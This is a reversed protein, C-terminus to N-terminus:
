PKISKLNARKRQINNFDNNSSDLKEMVARKRSESVHIYKQTTRFDTHGMLEQVAYPDDQAARGARSGFTHRLDHVRVNDLDATERVKRWQRGVYQLSYPFIREGKKVNRIAIAEKLADTLVANLPTVVDKKRDKRIIRPIRIYGQDFDVMEPCNRLGLVEGLRYGASILVRFLPELRPAVQGVAEFLHGEEEEDLFRERGFEEFRKVGKVPNPFKGVNFAHSLLALERNISAPSGDPKKGLIEAKRDRKYRHIDTEGIRSIRRGGFFGKLHAASCKDRAHSKPAKNVSVEALYRDIFKEFPPDQAKPRLMGVIIETRRKGAEEKAFTKSVEGLCETYREGKVYFNIYWSKGRKYIGKGM